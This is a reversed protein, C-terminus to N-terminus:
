MVGAFESSQRVATVARDRAVEGSALKFRAVMADLDIAMKQLEQAAKGTETAGQTTARAATAVATVNSTIDVAGRAAEALNRSIESTTASQEEVASAIGHQIDNIQGIVSGIEGIAGVAGKTDGQIAVIRQSINETAKATEKALEKVENAVVAFGKGADGARAAEITANLALLNTQQAISTIVKIVEGIEASSQGLKAIMSNTHEATQVAATAVKSAEATSKAIERISAGMEDAGTAVTQVNKSVQESGASAMNAQSSTQESTSEMERSIRSLEDSSRKLPAAIRSVQLMTARVIELVRNMGGLLESYAGQLKSEDARYTLDGRDAARIIGSMEQQLALINKKMHVFPVSVEDEASRRKVDVSMDGNALANAVSMLGTLGEHLGNVAQKMRDHDGRCDIAVRESLNGLSMKFLIRNGEQVPKIMADLTRNVGEVIERYIGAHHAADVRVDFKGDLAAGVLTNTDQSLRDMAAFVGNFGAALEVYSGRYDPRNLQSGNEGRSLKVLHEISRKLPVAVAELGENQAILLARYAGQTDGPNARVDLQGNKTADAVKQSERVLSRLSALMGKYSKGLRDKESLPTIEVEVNGQAIQEAQASRERNVRVMDTFARALMGIEDNTSVDVTVDADGVALREAAQAVEALARAIRSGIIRGMAIAAAVAILLLIGIEIRANKLNATNAVSVRNVSDNNSEIIASLKNTMSYQAEDASQLLREVEARDGRDKAALFAGRIEHFKLRTQKYDEYAEVEGPEMATHAYQELLGNNIAATDRIAQRLAADTSRDTTRAVDRLRLQNIYNNQVIKGLVIIANIDSGHMHVLAHESLTLQWVSLGGVTGALLAMM